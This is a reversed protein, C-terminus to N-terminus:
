DARVQVLPFLNFIPIFLATPCIECFPTSRTAWLVQLFKERDSKCMILKIREAAM